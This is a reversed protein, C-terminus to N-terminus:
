SLERISSETARKKVVHLADHSDDVTSFFLLVLDVVLDLATLLEPGFFEGCLRVYLSLAQTLVLQCTAFAIGITPM